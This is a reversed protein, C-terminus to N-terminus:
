EGPVGLRGARDTYYKRESIAKKGEFVPFFVTATKVDGVVHYNTLVLRRGKDVLTGSGTALRGGGRDSHVWVTSHVVKQYVSAGADAPAPDAKPPDAWLPAAPALWALLLLAALMRRM